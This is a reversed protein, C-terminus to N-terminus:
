PAKIISITGILPLPKMQGNYANIIGIIALVFTLLNALPLLIWGIFPILSLVINCAFALLLLVLGQNAHYMAFRSERAALLPVFFLIYAAVAVWKNENADASSAGGHNGTDNRNDQFTL